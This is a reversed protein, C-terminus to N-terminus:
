LGPLDVTLWDRHGSPPPTFGALVEDDPEPARRVAPGDPDGPSTALGAVRTRADVTLATIRREAAEISEQLREVELLHRELSDAARDHRTAVDRLQTAREHVRERMADAARGTWGLADTRSALQDAAARIDAGQERLQAARRRMVDTDGYM